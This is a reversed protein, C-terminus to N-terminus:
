NEKKEREREEDFLSVTVHYLIQKIYTNVNIKEKSVHKYVVKTQFFVIRGLQLLRDIRMLKFQPSCVHMAIYFDNKREGCDTKILQM